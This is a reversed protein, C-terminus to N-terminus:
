GRPRTACGWSARCCCPRSGASSRAGDVVGGPVMQAVAHPHAPLDNGRDGIGSSRLRACEFTRPRTKLQYSRRAGCHACVYGQPWRLRALAEICGAESGYREQFELMGRM